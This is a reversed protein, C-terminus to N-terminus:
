QDNTMPRRGNAMRAEAQALFKKAMPNDPDLRLTEKFQQAAEPFRHAKALAVGLNLHAEAFEPKLRAAESLHRLAEEDRNLKALVLGLNSQAEAFKPNALVAQEFQTTAATTDGQANLANGLNFHAIANGPQLRIAERYHNTAEAFRGQNALLKGLNIHAAVNNSKLRLAELYQALAESTRGQQALIQGLNVRAEVFDPKARLAREYEALAEPVRGQNALALGLGNRAEVSGPRWRLAARFYVLADGSRGQADLVNALGYYAQEHHPLLRLVQRWQEAAEDLQGFNQLLRAFNEHLSWDDPARAIAARYLTAGAEFGERRRAHELQRVQEQLRQDRADHDLQQAFPAQRLRQQVEELVQLRDYDSLALRRACDDVSLLGAPRGSSRLIEEAFARAVLYNGAFNLHVHEFLFEEGVVGHPSQRAVQEAAEVWRIGAQNTAAMRILENIRTDARFRLTDLDRASVFSKQAETFNGLAWHCRGLHFRLDAYRDDIRAAQGYEALAAPHRAAAEAALGAEYHKQWEMRQAETLGARHQSAFPPCDKLNSVVGSILVKAGANAGFRLIDRLNSAFHQHVKALRPDDPAVQQKLFMEMGEWSAPAGRPRALRDRWAEFLQGLRTSKLALNARIFTRAPTQAGFVTGAGFPGVVENNGLYVIWYDGQKGVCDRAIQRIVHSNIATVATNIVEIRQGPLAERLMVELIRGFGFSPEPDGMAASEGFVFLRLTDPPKVAAMRVPRPTRELGPPFYRSSFQQNDIFVPQGDMRSKLFFSVPYGYGVARLILELLVLNALPVTAAIVRFWVRRRRSRAPDPAAPRPKSSSKM